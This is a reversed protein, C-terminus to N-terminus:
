DRFKKALFKLITQRIKKSDNKFEMPPTIREEKSRDTFKILEFVGHIKVMKEDYMNYKVCNFIPSELYEADDFLGISYLCNLMNAFSHEKMSHSIPPSFMAPKLYTLGHKEDNELHHKKLRDDIFLIQEPSIVGKVGCYDKFIRRLTSFTKLPEYNSPDRKKWDYSRVNHTADIICDFFGPCNFRREILLKAFKLKFINSANSYMCVARVKGAQKVKLIPLLMVDLNPRLITELLAPSKEVMEVISMEAKRLREKLRASLSFGPNYKMYVPNELLEISFFEGWTSIVDFYGLTNDLDFAVLAM